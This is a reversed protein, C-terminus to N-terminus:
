PKSSSPIIVFFTAYRFRNILHTLIIAERNFDRGDWLLLVGLFAHNEHFLKALRVKLLQYDPATKSEPSTLARDAGKYLDQWLCIVDKTV